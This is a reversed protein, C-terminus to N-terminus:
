SSSSSLMKMGYRAIDMLIQAAELLQTQQQKTMGLRIETHEWGHKQLCNLHKYNCGCYECEFSGGQGLCSELHVCENDAESGEDDTDERPSASAFSALTAASAFSALTAAAASVAESEKRQKKTSKKKLELIEYHYPSTSKKKKSQLNQNTEKQRRKRKQTQKSAYMPKTTGPSLYYYNSGFLVSPPPLHEKEVNSLM